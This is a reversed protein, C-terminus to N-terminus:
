ETIKRPEKIPIVKRSTDMFYEAWRLINGGSKTVIFSCDPGGAAPPEDMQKYFEYADAYEQVTDIDEKRKRAIELAEEYTIVNKM